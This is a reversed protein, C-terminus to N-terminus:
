KPVGSEIPPKPKEAEKERLEKRKQQRAKRKEAAKQKDEKSMTPKGSSMADKDTSSTPPKAEEKKWEEARKAKRAKKKEARKEDLKKQEEPSLTPKGSSMADKDASPAPKAPAQAFSLGTMSLAFLIAIFVITLKKM